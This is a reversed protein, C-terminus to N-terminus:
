VRNCAVTYAWSLGFFAVTIAIFLVDLMTHGGLPQGLLARDLRCTFVGSRVGLDAPITAGEALQLRRSNRRRSRAFHLAGLRRDVLGSNAVGRM